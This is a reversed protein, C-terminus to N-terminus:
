PGDDSRESLVHICSVDPYDRLCAPRLFGTHSLYQEDHLDSSTNRRGTRLRRPDNSEGADVPKRCSRDLSSRRRRCRLIATPPKRLIRHHHPRIAPDTRFYEYIGGIVPSLGFYTSLKIMHLELFCNIKMSFYLFFTFYSTNSVHFCTNWWM